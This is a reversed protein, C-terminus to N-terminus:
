ESQIEKLLSGPTYGYKEKFCKVFYATSRFGTQFAVEAVTGSQRNLLDSARQLRIAQIFQNTSQNLLARLKRNLNPKSMGIEKAFLDLSFEENSMNLEVIAIARELFTEDLSNTAIESPKMSVAEAFRAKLHLRNKILNDVRAVLEATDFPKVIYDDAGQELGHLKDTQEAKATLLILPIHSTRIDAKITQCVEIGGMVPMMVDSIILDPLKDIALRVGMEGNSAELIRYKSELRQRIFYRMDDNDDVILIKKSSKSLESVEGDDVFNYAPVDIFDLSGSDTQDAVDESILDPHVHQEGLLFQLTVATGKNELSDISINGKHLLVLEKVLSLGIGSGEQMDSRDLDAQFFRDFVRDLYEKAIGKGTDSIKISVKGFSKVLVVSVAGGPPTFKYANTLINFLIKEMKDPDFYLMLEEVKSDLVTTITREKALSEYSYVIGKLFPVLDMYVMKLDMKGAEVRSLDLLQNVLRNQRQASQYAIDLLKRDKSDSKGEKLQKIIGLILTIPTRFEHSINAFFRTKMRNLEMLEKNQNRISNIKNFLGYFLVGSFLVSGIQFSNQTAQNTSIIGNSELVYLFSGIILLGTSYLLTRAYKQGNYSLYAVMILNFFIWLMLFYRQINASLWDDDFAYKVLYSSFATLFSLGIYIYAVKKLKKLLDLYSIVFVMITLINIAVSLRGLIFPRYTGRYPIMSDAVDHISFFYLCFGLMMMGFYLFVGEKFLILLFLSILCFLLM